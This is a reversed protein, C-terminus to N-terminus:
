ATGHSLAESEERLCLASVLAALAVTIAGAFFSLQYGRTLATIADVGALSLSQTRELAIKVLLALGLTGGLTQSANLAGTGVGVRHPAVGMLSILFLPNFAIGIGLGLLVMAPMVDWLLRGAVPARAFWLLGISAIAFGTITLPRLGWRSILFPVVAISVSADLLTAPLYTLGVELPTLHLVYQLYQTSIFFWSLM